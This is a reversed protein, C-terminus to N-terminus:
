RRGRRLWQQLRELLLYLAPTTYLTILQSVALGGIIVLGMPRRLEGGDGLGLGVEVGLGRLGLPRGQVALDGLVHGRHGQGVPAVGEQM